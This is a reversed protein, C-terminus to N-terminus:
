LPPRLSCTYILPFFYSISWQYKLSVILKLNFFITFSVSIILRPLIKNKIIQVTRTSIFLPPYSITSMSSSHLLTSPKPCMKNKPLHIISILKPPNLIYTTQPYIFSQLEVMIQTLLPKQEHSTQIYILLNSKSNDMVKIKDIIQIFKGTKFNLLM